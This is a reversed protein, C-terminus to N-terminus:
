SLSFQEPSLNTENAFLAAATCSLVILNELEETLQEYISSANHSEGPIKM